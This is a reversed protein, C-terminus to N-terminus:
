MFAEALLWLASHLRLFVYCPKYIECDDCEMQICEEVGTQAQQRGVIKKRNRNLFLLERIRKDKM